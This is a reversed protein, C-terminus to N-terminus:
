AREDLGCHDEQNRELLRRIVLDLEEPCSLSQCKLDACLSKFQTTCETWDIRKERAKASLVQEERSLNFSCSVSALM